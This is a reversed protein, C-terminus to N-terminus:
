SPSVFKIEVIAHCATITMQEVAACLEANMEDM